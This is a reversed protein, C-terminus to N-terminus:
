RFQLPQAIVPTFRNFLGAVQDSRNPREILPYRHIREPPQSMKRGRPNILHEVLARTETHKHWGLKIPFGPFTAPNPFVIQPCTNRLAAILPIGGPVKIPQTSLPRYSRWHATGNQIGNRNRIGVLLGTRGPEVLTALARAYGFAVLDISLPRLRAKDLAGVLEEMHEAVAAVLLLLPRRAVAAMASRRAAATVM